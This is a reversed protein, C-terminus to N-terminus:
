RCLNIEFKFKLETVNRQGGSMGMTQHFLAKHLLIRTMVDTDNNM